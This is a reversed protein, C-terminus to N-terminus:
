RWPEKVRLSWTTDLGTIEVRDPRIAKVRLGAVTEGQLIPRAGDVGPLGEVLATPDRGNDWVIGVLTLVPKPTPATAPQVLRVPDYPVTAPRRTVRFPDRGVLAAVLSEPQTPAHAPTASPESGVRPPVVGHMLPWAVLRVALALGMSGTVMLSANIHATSM